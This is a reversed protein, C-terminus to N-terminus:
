DRLDDLIKFVDKKVIEKGSIAQKIDNRFDKLTDMIPTILSETDGNENNAYGFDDEKVFGLVKFIFLVYKSIEKLIPAKIETNEVQMYISTASVIQSLEDITDM